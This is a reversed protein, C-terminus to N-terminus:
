LCCTHHAITCNAKFSRAHSRVMATGHRSLHSFWIRAVCRSTHSGIEQPVKCQQIKRILSQGYFLPASAEDTCPDLAFWDKCWSHQPPIIDKHGTCHDLMLHGVICWTAPFQFEVFLNLLRDIVVEREIRCAEQFKEIGYKDRTGWILEFDLSITFVGREFPITQQV